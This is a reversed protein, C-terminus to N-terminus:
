HSWFSFCPLFSVRSRGVCVIKGDTTLSNVLSGFDHPAAITDIIFDFRDGAAKMAAADTSDWFDDARFNYFIEDM